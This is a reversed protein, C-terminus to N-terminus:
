LRTLIGYQVGGHIEVCESNFVATLTDLRTILFFAQLTRPSTQSRILIHIVVDNQRLSNMNKSLRM